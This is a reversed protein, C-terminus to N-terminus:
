ESASDTSGVPIFVPDQVPGAPGEARGAVDIADAAVEILTGREDEGVKLGYGIPDGAFDFLRVRAQPRDDFAKALAAYDALVRSRLTAGVERGPGQEILDLVVDVPIGLGSLVDVLAGHGGPGGGATAAAAAASMMETERSVDSARDEGELEADEPPSRDEAM